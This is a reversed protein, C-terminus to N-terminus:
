GRDIVFGSEEACDPVRAEDRGSIKGGMASGLERSLAAVAEPTGQAELLVSGDAENRVWGTLGLRLAIGRATARFGVGQVRGSYRVRVRM